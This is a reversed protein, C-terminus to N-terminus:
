SGENGIKRINSTLEEDWPVDLFDGEFGDFPDKCIIKFGTLSMDRKMDDLAAKISARKMFPCTLVGLRYPSCLRIEIESLYEHSAAQAANSFRM